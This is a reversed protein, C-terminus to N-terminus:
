FQEDIAFDYLQRIRLKIKNIIFHIIIIFIFGKTRSTVPEIGPTGVLGYLASKSCGNPSSLSPSLMALMWLIAGSFLYCSYESNKSNIFVM